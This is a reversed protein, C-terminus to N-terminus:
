LKYKYNLVSQKLQENEMVLQEWKAELQPKIRKLEALEKKTTEIKAKRRRNCRAASIRNKVKQIAARRSQEIRKRELKEQKALEKERRIQEREEATKGRGRPKRAKSFDDLFPPSQVVTARKQITPLVLPKTYKVSFECDHMVESKLTLLMDATTPEATSSTTLCTANLIKGGSAPQFITVTSRGYFRGKPSQTLSGRTKMPTQAFFDQNQELTVFSEHPSACLPELREDCEFCFRREVLVTHHLVRNAPPLHTQDYTLEYSGSDSITNDSYSRDDFSISVKMRLGDDLYLTWGLEVEERERRRMMSWCEGSEECLVYRKLEREKRVMLSSRLKSTRTMILGATFGQYHFVPMTVQYFECNTDLVGHRNYDSDQQVHSEKSAFADHMATPSTLADAITSEDEMLWRRIWSCVNMRQLAVQVPNLGGFLGRPARSAKGPSLNQELQWVIYDLSDDNKEPPRGSTEYSVSSTAEEKQVIISPSSSDSSSSPELHAFTSPETKFIPVVTAQSQYYSSQQFPQYGGEVLGFTSSSTTSKTFSNLSSM